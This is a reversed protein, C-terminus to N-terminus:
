FICCSSQVAISLGSLLILWPTNSPICKNESRDSFLCTPAKNVSCSGARRAPVAASWLCWRRAWTSCTKTVAWCMQVRKLMYACMNMWVSVACQLIWHLFEFCNENQIDVLFNENHILASLCLKAVNEIIIQVKGEVFWIFLSERSM